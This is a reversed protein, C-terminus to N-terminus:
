LIRIKKSLVKSSNRLDRVSLVYIGASLSGTNLQVQNKGTYLSRQGQWVSAGGLTFLSIQIQREAESDIQMHVLGSGNPAYATFDFPATEITMEIMSSYSFDGNYDVQRIRYILYEADPNPDTFSYFQPIDSNGVGNLQGIMQFDGGKKKREVEFHDNNLEKATAWNLQVGAPVSEGDFSLWEVPMVSNKTAVCNLACDKECDSCASGACLAACNCDSADAPDGIGGYDSVNAGKYIISNVSTSTAPALRFDTTSNVGAMNSFSIYAMWFVPNKNSASCDSSGAEVQLVETNCPNCIYATYGNSSTGHDADCDATGACGDINILDVEHNKADIQIEYEFCPNGCVENVDTGCDKGADLLFSFTFAGSSEDAIRMALALFEDGNDATKDPDVISYYVYDSGGDSDYVIDTNGCGGGAGLDNSETSGNPEVGDNPLVRWSLNAGGTGALVEFEAYENSTGSWTGDGSVNSMFNGGDPNLTSSSGSIIYGPDNGRGM